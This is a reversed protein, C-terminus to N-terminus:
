MSPRAALIILEGTKFGALMGDLSVYGSNVKKANVADPNDVIEMYEEVRGKLIDDIHAVGEAIQSQTLDFIQKEIADFIQISEKQEYVEGSIRQCVKLLQRLLSKEKVIKSYEVCPATSILFSSLEYLYDIGGIKELNGNKALQDSLTIVDITKHASRLQHIAEYVFSHEKQYFDKFHLRDSEYIWLTDPDMLAGCIVGKEAELHHPPTTYDVVM